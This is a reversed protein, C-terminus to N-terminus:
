CRFLINTNEYQAIVDKHRLLIRVIQLFLVDGQAVSFILVAETITLLLLPAVPFRGILYNRVHVTYVTLLRM